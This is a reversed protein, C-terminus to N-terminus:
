REYPLWLTLLTGGGSQTDCALSGHLSAARARMNSLGKGPINLLSADFGRGNDAVFAAIGAVDNEMAEYCGIRLENASSHALVNGIAEQFIRLVHLANAADLWGIPRCPEVQWKCSIGADRLDNTMRHRLNGLLAVLDGEIPELSDVTIKLDSIARKLTKITSESQNQQRAVALATILNSGIGDHMEQMLREREDAIASGVVLKQRANESLALELRTEAVRRELEANAEGLASFASIARLGFTLLFAILFFFGNFVALYFDNGKWVHGSGALTADYIGFLLMLVMVILWAAKAANANVLIDRVGLFIAILVLAITPIYLMMNTLQFCWHVFTYPIVFAIMIAIITQFRPVKLFAIYFAFTTVMSLLTAAVTLGSFTAMHFPVDEAFYNLNRLFYLVTSVALYGLEVEERRQFWLLLAFLGLLLMSSSAITPASIRWFFQRNYYDELDARPGIVIRGVGVSEQSFARVLIANTGAKLGREPLQILYPRYWTNKQDTDDAFNRFVEVGNLYVVFQNRMSVTYLAFPGNQLTARDFRHRAWLTHTDGMRWKTDILRYIGPTSQRTWGSTPPSISNSLAYDGDRFEIVPGGAERTIEIKNSIDSPNNAAAAASYAFTPLGLGIGIAWLMWFLSRAVSWYDKRQHKM